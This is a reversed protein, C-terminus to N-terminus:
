ELKASIAFFVTDQFIIKQFGSFEYSTLEGSHFSLVYKRSSNYLLNSEDYYGKISSILGNPDRILMVKQPGKEGSRQYTTINNNFSQAYSESVNYQRLDLDYFIGLESKLEVSDAIINLTETQDELLVEKAMKRGHLIMSQDDLLNRFELFDNSTENGTSNTDLSSVDLCSSVITLVVMFLFHVSFQSKM